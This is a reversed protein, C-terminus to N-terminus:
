KIEKATKIEEKASSKKAKVVDSIKRKKKGLPKVEEDKLGLLDKLHKRKLGIQDKIFRKLRPTIKATNDGEMLILAHYIQMSSFGDIDKATLESVDMDFLKQDKVAKEIEDATMEKVDSIEATRIGRFYPDQMEEKMAEALLFNRIYFLAERRKILDDESMTIGDYDHPFIVQTKYLKLEVIGHPNAVKKQGTVTFKIM